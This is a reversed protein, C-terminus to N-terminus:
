LPCGLENMHLSLLYLPQFCGPETLEKKGGELPIKKGSGTPKEGSEVNERGARWKKPDISTVARVGM